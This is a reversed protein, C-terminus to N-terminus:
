LPELLNRALELRLPDREDALLRVPACEALPRLEADLLPCEPLRPEEHKRRRRGCIGGHRPEGTEAPELLEGTACRPSRFPLANAPEHEVVRPPRQEEAVAVLV